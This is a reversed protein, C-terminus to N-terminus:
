GDPGQQGGKHGSAQEGRGGWSYGPSHVVKAGLHWVAAGSECTPSRRTM